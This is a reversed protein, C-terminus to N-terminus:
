AAREGPGPAAGEDESTYTALVCALKLAEILPLEGDVRVRIRGERPARVMWGPGAMGISDLELRPLVITNESAEAPHPTTM